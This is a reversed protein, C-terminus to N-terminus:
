TKMIRFNRTLFTCISLVGDNPRIKKQKRDGIYMAITVDYTTRVNQFMGYEVNQPDSKKCLSDAM